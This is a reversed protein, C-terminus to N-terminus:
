CCWEAGFPPSHPSSCVSLLAILDWSASTARKGDLMAPLQTALRTTALDREQGLRADDPPEVHAPDADFCTPKSTLLSPRHSGLPPQQGVFTTKLGVLHCSLSSIALSLTANPFTQNLVSFCRTM